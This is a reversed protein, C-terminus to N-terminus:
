STGYAGHLQAPTWGCPAFPNPHGYADPLTVGNPHTTATNKENWYTSCPPANVFAPSPPADPTKDPAVFLASEDLGVVGSVFALGAPVSIQKSPSRVTKGNFRYQGFSTAFAASAQAVTGEAAVYHNNPPTYDVSFGNARLWSQVASVQAQSPAFRQRFQAPTLYKGYSSSRPNSM